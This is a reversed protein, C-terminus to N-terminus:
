LRNSIILRWVARFGFNVVVVRFRLSIVATVPLGPFRLDMWLFLTGAAWNEFFSKWASRVNHLVHCGVVPLFWETTRETTRFEWLLRRQVCVYFKMFSSFRVSTWNTLWTETEFPMQFWVHVDVIFLFGEPAWNTTFSKWMSRFQSLVENDVCPLFRETTRNTTLIKCSAIIQFLVINCVCLLFSVAAANTVFPESATKHDFCVLTNTLSALICSTVSIITPGTEELM